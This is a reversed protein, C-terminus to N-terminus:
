TSSLEIVMGDYAPEVGAPLERRLKAYDLDIHLHTLIARKPRLRAIWALTQKVTFHGPHATYRLADIILVDLGELMAVSDEPIGSVDPAYALNGVRYGLSHIEGHLQRFPTLTVVGGRGGLTVPQQPIIEHPKLIAPYTGAANTRFCYGFKETIEAATAADFYVPVKAKSNLAYVRLDDIGHTHDAHGHTFCVGDVHGCGVALMSDRLDPPTDILLATTGAKATQRVLGACRRRRNRPNDPDCSGWNGDIRPVGGSSGCGLITFTLTM